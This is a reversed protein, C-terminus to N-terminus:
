TVGLSVHAQGYITNENILQFFQNEASHVSEKFIQLAGNSSTLTIDVWLNDSSHNVWIACIKASEESFFFKLPIKITNFYFVWTCHVCKKLSLSFCLISIPHTFNSHNLKFRARLMRAALVFSFWDHLERVLFLFVCWDWLPCLVLEKEVIKKRM